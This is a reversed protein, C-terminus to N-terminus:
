KRYAIATTNNNIYNIETFFVLAQSVAIEYPLQELETTQHIEAIWTEATKNHVFFCIAKVRRYAKKDRPICCLSQSILFGTYKCSTFALSQNFCKDVYM